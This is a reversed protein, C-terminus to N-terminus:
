QDIKDTLVASINRIKSSRSNALLTTYNLSVQLLWRKNNRSLNELVAFLIYLQLCDYQAVSIMLWAFDNKPLMM